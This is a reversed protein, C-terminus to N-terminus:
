GYSKKGKEEIKKLQFSEGSINKVILFSGYDSISKIRFARHGGDPWFSQSERYYVYGEILHTCVDGEKRPLQTM